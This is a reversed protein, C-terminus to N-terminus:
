VGPEVWMCGVFHGLYNCILVFNLERLLSLVLPCLISCILADAYALGLETADHDLGGRETGDEKYVGV